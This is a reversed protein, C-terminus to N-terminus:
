VKMISTDSQLHASLLDDLRFSSESIESFDCYRHRKGEFGQYLSDLDEPSLQVTKMNEVIRSPTV